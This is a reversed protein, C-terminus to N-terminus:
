ILQLERARAIALARKNVGLKGYINKTHYLVTNVSVILQDAIEQNKLGQTILALIELERESLPDVLSAQSSGQGAATAAGPEAACAALLTRTYAPLVGRREAAALLAAMPAGEDVFLRVCGAPAALGLAQALVDLAADGHGGAYHAVAQLALGRLRQDPWQREAANAIARKLVALAAPAHGQALRVRAVCLPLGHRAAVEDAAIVNGQALLARVRVTAVFPAQHLVQHRQMEADAQALQASAADADGEALALRAFFIRCAVPNDASQMMEAVRLSQEAHRRAEALENREYRIRALGLHAEGAAPQFTGGVRDLIARYTGEAAQFDLNMEQVQGLGARASVNVVLNGSREAAAISEEYAGIAAAREGRLHYAIGLKWATATRVPLNDPHLYELAIQSQAIITEADHRTAALFGRIAAIHGILNRGGADFEQERLAAEARQLKAEVEGLRGAMSLASGYMVWLRPRADLVAPPLSALWNLVPAVAGRFHLPMGKGALLYDAREIDNAATAHQFADLAFGNVEYWESARGHLAAVGVEDSGAAAQVRLRQRLLDGFLHHYRYWRRENDLPVLFLNARELAELTAQGPTAADGVVADCLPGCLRDLISTRLLFAQVAEPQQNLVEEVLYDMVFRHSGTFSEIFAPADDPHGQLSIAALQLGAIWGETRADLAAVDEATLALGMATNLFAAAEDDTFRLDTARIETLNGSARLRALPLSPDERSTIVLHMQPPLYELLFALAQEVPEADIVHLDDLVLVFDDPIAAFDNLLAALIAQPAAQQAAQLLALVDGGVEPAITRLAAVLYAIFRAPDNDGADLALWAVRRGGGAQTEAVWSSVLTTKGFGAPASVLTLKRRTGAELRKVLRTRPVLTPTPPPIYLKTALITAPM